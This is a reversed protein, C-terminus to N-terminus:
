ELRMQLRLESLCLSPLTSAVRSKMCHEFGDKTRKHEKHLVEGGEDRVRGIGWGERSAVGVGGERVRVVCFM